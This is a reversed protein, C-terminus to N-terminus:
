KSKQNSVEENPEMTQYLEWSIDTMHAHVIAQSEELFVEGDATYYVKGVTPHSDLVTKIKKEIEVSM